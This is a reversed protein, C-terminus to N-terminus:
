HLKRDRPGLGEESDISITFPGDNTLTVFMHEAFRGTKVNLGSAEFLSLTYEFLPRAEETSAADVFSPRRGKRTTGYLTFQSVILLSAEKELVSLNFRGSEDEFIRLNLIKDVLYKSAIAEDGRGVGLLVVLGPGITAVDENLISLNAKSVRQVL